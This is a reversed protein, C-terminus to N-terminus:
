MYQLHVHSGRQTHSYSSVKNLCQCYTALVISDKLPDAQRNTSPQQITYLFAASLLFIPLARQLEQDYPCFGQVTASRDPSIALSSKESTAQLLPMLLKTMKRTGRHGKDRYGLVFSQSQFDALAQVYLPVGSFSWRWLVVAKSILGSQNLGLYMYVHNYM